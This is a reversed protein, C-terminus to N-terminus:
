NMIGYSILQEEFGQSILYNLVVSFPFKSCFQIHLGILRFDKEKLEKKCIPCKM